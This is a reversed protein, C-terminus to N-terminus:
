AVLGLDVRRIALDLGESRCRFELYARAAIAATLPQTVLLALLSIQQIVVLVAESSVFQSALLAPGAYLSLQLVTSIVFSGISVGLATWFSRWGLAWSRAFARLPGAGEAGAVVSACMLLADGIFFGIYLLCGAVAKVPICLVPVLLAVWWRRAAVAVLSRPGGTDHELSARAVVGSLLGIFSLVVPRLAAVSWTLPTASDLSGVAAFVPSADIDAGRGASLTAWLDLLQLPLLLAAAVGFLLGFHTRLLEFGGDLVGGVGLPRLDAIWGARSDSAGVRDPWAADGRAIAVGAPGLSSATGDAGTSPAPARGSGDPAEPDEPPM